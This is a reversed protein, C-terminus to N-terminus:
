LSRDATYRGPRGGTRDERENVIGPPLAHPMTPRVPEPLLLRRSVRNLSILTVLPDILMSSMSMEVMAKSVSRLLTATM